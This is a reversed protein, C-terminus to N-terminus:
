TINLWGGGIWVTIGIMNLLGPTAPVKRCVGEYNILENM